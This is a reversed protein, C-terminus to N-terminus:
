KPGGRNAGLAIAWGTSGVRGTVMFGQTSCPPPWRSHRLRTWLEASGGRVGANRRRDLCGVRMCRVFREAVANRHLALPGVRQVAGGDAALVADFDPGLM